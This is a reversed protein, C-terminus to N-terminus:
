GASQASLRPYLSKLREYVDRWLRYKRDYVTHRTADPRFSRGPAVYSAIQSWDELAGVGMGAVFAAGL